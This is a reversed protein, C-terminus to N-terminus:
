CKLIWCIYMKIYYVPLVVLIMICESIWYYKNLSVNLVVECYVHENLECFFLLKSLFLVHSIILDINM